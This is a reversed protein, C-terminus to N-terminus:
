SPLECHGRWHQPPVVRVGLKQGAKLPTLRHGSECVWIEDKDGAMLPQDSRKVSERVLPIRVPDFGMLLAHVYDVAATSYGLM